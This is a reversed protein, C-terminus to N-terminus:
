TIPLQSESRSNGGKVTHDSFILKYDSKEKKKPNKTAKVKEDQKKETKSQSSNKIKEETKPQPKETKIPAVTTPIKTEKTKSQPKSDKEINIDTSQATAKAKDEDNKLQSNKDDERKNLAAMSTTYKESLKGQFFVVPIFCVFVVLVYRALRKKLSVIRENKKYDYILEMVLCIIFSGFFLLYEITFYVMDNGEVLIKGNKMSNYMDAFFCITIVILAIIAGLLIKKKRKKM